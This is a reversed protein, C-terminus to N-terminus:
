KTDARWWFASGSKEDVICRWKAAKEINTAVATREVIASESESERRQKKPEPELM